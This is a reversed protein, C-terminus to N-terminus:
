SGEVPVTYTADSSTGGPFEISLGSNRMCAILACVPASRGPQGTGILPEGVLSGPRGNLGNVSSSRGPKSSSSPATYAANADCQSTVGNAPYTAPTLVRM